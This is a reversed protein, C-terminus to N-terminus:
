RSHRVSRGPSSRSSGSSTTSPAATASSCRWTAEPAIMPSRGTIEALPAYELNTLGFGRESEPLFLNWLGATKAKEKLEEVIPAPQWRDKGDNIQRVFTEENPYIHADMFDGVRKQLAKVKDSYDFHM